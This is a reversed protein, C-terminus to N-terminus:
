LNLRDLVLLFRKTEKVDHTRVIKAGNIVAVATEALAAELRELPGPTEKLQLEEQLLKGLHSKRSVGIMIPLGLKKFKSLKQIIELNQEVTKGFGIGPDLIFQKRRIGHKM